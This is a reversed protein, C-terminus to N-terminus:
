SPRYRKSTRVSHSASKGRITVAMLSARAHVMHDNARGAVHIMAFGQQDFGEGADVGVAQDFLFLAADGDLQAKGVQIPFITGLGTNHIHRAMFFKDFIHQCAGATNVQSHQHNGRVVTDHGLGYFM